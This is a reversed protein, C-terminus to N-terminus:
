RVKGSISLLSPKRIGLYFVKLRQTAHGRRGPEWKVLLEYTSGPAIPTSEWEPITCGCSTRIHEILLPQQGDNRLVFKAEVEKGKVLEGL